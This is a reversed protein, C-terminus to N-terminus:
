RSVIQLNASALYVLKQGGRRFAIRARPNAHSGELERVEGEGWVPHIVRTGPTLMSLADEDLEQVVRPEDVPPPPPADRRTPRNRDFRSQFSKRPAAWGRPQRDSDNDYVVVTDGPVEPVPAPPPARRPTARRSFVVDGTLLERPLLRLFRSEDTDKFMGGFRRRRARLLYLRKEARTIAVYALRREEELDKESENARFHPFVDEDMGVVVVVPFELGKAAHVTMLTVKGGTEEADELKDTDSVLSVRDLFEVLGTPPTHAEFDFTSNKLEELNDIRALSEPTNQETYREITKTERLIADLLSPLPRDTAVKRLLEVLDRFRGLSAKLRKPSRPDDAMAQLQEWCSVERAVAAETIKKRTGQGIGRPPENLVRLFAIDDNPNLILKMYSLADKIEKRDYFRQAGILVFPLRSAIFEEELQRSQANTRFFIAIDRPKMGVRMERRVIELAKVAEERDDFSVRVTIPDGLGAETWLQKGLRDTNASVVATAAKLITETSRYNRELRVVTAGEFDREFDLINRIDAGRFSYISQDEDGVVCVNRDGHDALLRLLRYQAANTDQYEDVMVHAFRRRYRDRVDQNNELLRITEFILDGFDVANSKRLREQYRRYIEPVRPDLDAKKQKALGSPTLADNKARDIVASIARPNVQKPLNAEQVIMKVLRKSEDADYIVFDNSLGEVHDIERRLIRLCTSHFTSVWPTAGADELLARTRERMEGAAKNTFTVALLRWPEIGLEKVLWALRLTLVRTKGSGAGALVLLPGGKHTVAALQEPNLGKLAEDM